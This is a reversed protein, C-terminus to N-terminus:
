VVHSLNALSRFLYVISSLITLYTFSKEMSEEKMNKRVWLFGSSAFLGIPLNYFLRNMIIRNGMIYLSSTAIMFLTFYYTPLNNRKALTYLGLVALSLLLINSLLGGYLITFIFKSSNWFNSIGSVGGMATTSAGVVGMGHFVLTKLLESLGITTLYVLILKLERYYAKKLFAQYCIYLILLLFGGLYQDLTWPHIFVTMGGLFSAIVTKKYSVCKLANFLFGLSFFIMSLALMNTIFHSYMGVITQYGCLTFFTTWIAIYRNESYNFSLFYSSALMLPILIAPLYRVSSLTSLGSIRQFSFILISILPRSSSYFITLIDNGISEMRRVYNPIDTGVNGNLPNVNPLYAYLPVLIGLIIILLFFKKEWDGIDAISKNIDTSNKDSWKRYLSLSWTLMLLLGMFPAIRGAIYFLGTEIRAIENFPSSLGLPLLVVWHLLAVAEIMSLYLLIGSISKKFCREVFLGTATAILSAISIVVEINSIPLFFIALAPLMLAKFKKKLLMWDVWFVLLVLLPLLMSSKLRFTMSITIRNVMPIYVVEFADLLQLIALFFQLALLLPPMWAIFSSDRVRIKVPERTM